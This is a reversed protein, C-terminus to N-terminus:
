GGGFPTASASKHSNAITVPDRATPYAEGLVAGPLVLCLRHSCFCDAFANIPSSFSEQEHASELATAPYAVPIGPKADVVVLSSAGLSGGGLSDIGARLAGASRSNAFTGAPGQWKAALDALVNSFRGANFREM